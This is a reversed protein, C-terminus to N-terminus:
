RRNIFDPNNYENDPNASFIDSVPRYVPAPSVYSSSNYRLLSRIDTNSLQVTLGPIGYNNKRVSLLGNKVFLVLDANEINHNYDSILVIIRFHQSRVIDVYSPNTSIRLDFEEITIVENIFLQAKIVDLSITSIDNNLFIIATPLQM